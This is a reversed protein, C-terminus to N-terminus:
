ELWIVNQPLYTELDLHIHKKYLGVRTFGVWLAFRVLRFRDASNIYNSPTTLDVGSYFGTEPNLMHSSDSVGGVSTNYLPERLSSSVILPKGYERRLDDLMYAMAPLLWEPHVFEKPNFHNIEDWKLM